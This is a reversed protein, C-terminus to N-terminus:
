CIENILTAFAHIAAIVIPVLHVLFILMGRGEEGPGIPSWLTMGTFAFFLLSGLAFCAWVYLITLARKMMM